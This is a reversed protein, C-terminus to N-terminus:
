GTKDTQGGASVVKSCRLEALQPTSMGITVSRSTPTSVQLAALEQKTCNPAAAESLAASRAIHAQCRADAVAM